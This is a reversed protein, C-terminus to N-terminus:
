QDVRSSNVECSSIEGQEGGYAVGHENVMRFATLGAILHLNRQVEGLVKDSNGEGLLYELLM